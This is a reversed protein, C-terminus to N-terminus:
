KKSNFSLYAVWSLTYFPRLHLVTDADSDDFVNYRSSM